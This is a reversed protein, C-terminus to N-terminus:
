PSSAWLFGVAWSLLPIVWSCLGVGRWGYGVVVGASVQANM